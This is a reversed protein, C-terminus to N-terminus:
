ARRGWRGPAVCVAVHSTGSFRALGIFALSSWNRRLTQMAAAAIGREATRRGSTGQEVSASSLQLIERRVVRSM